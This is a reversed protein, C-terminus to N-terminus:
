MNMISMVAQSNQNAQSLMSSGTQNLIRLKVFEMYETAMDADKLRSESEQMNLSTQTLSNMNYELENMYTGLKDRQSSVKHMAADIIGISRSANERTTVDVADLGLSQAGMDGINIFIDEGRGQGIQFATSRDQVHLTTTYPKAEETLVYRKTDDDWRAKVNAMSDFEISANPHLGGNITNGDTDVNKRLARGTHADYVSATFTNEEAEQITNLGLAKIIDENESSFALTGAKGAVASRVVISGREAKAPTRIEIPEGDSGLVLKGDADRQYTVEEVEESSYMAESSMATGDSLTCFNERNDTYAGQGLDDAIADNIKRRVDYITDGGYVVIDATKGDGQTIRIMQPETFYSVGSASRFAKIEELSAPHLKKETVTKVENTTSGSVEDTSTEEKLVTFDIVNSKQVQGRGAKATIEVKYNGETANKQGFQDTVSIAGTLRLKTSANDSTWQAASSGDLLRKRNFTTTNTVSDINRQLEEIETQVYSRDQYTLSDNAAQVSLERMRQLMDNIRSLGGEATQLMSIGDQTNRVARDLGTVQASMNMGMAFGAADDAATAAKLGTSLARATNEIAKNTSNLANYALNIINNNNIMM